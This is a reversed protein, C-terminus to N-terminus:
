ACSFQVDSMPKRLWTMNTSPWGLWDCSWDNWSRWNHFKRSNRDISEMKNKKRLVFSSEASTLASISCHVINNQSKVLLQSDNKLSTASRVISPYFEVIRKLQFFCFLLEFICSSFHSLSYLVFKAVHAAYRKWCMAMTTTKLILLSRSVSVDSRHLLNCNNMIKCSDSKSTQHQNIAVWKTHCIENIPPMKVGPQRANHATQPVM